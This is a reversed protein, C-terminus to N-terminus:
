GNVTENACYYVYSADKNLKWEKVDPIAPIFSHV